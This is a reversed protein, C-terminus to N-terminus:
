SNKIRKGDADFRRGIAVPKNGKSGRPPLTDIPPRDGGFLQKLRWVIRALLLAACVSAITLALPDEIGNKYILWISALAVAALLFDIVGFSSAAYPDRTRDGSGAQYEDEGQPPFGPPLGPGPM